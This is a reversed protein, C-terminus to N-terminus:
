FWKKWFPRKSEERTMIVLEWSADARKMAAKAEERAIETLNRIQQTEERVMLTLNRTQRIKESILEILRSDEM